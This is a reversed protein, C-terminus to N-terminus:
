SHPYAICRLMLRIRAAASRTPAQVDLPLSEAELVCAVVVVDVTISLVEATGVVSACILAIVVVVVVLVVVVVV